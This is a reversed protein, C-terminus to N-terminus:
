EVGYAVGVKAAGHVGNRGVPPPEQKNVQCAAAAAWTRNQMREIVRTRHLYFPLNSPRSVMSSDRKGPARVYGTLLIARACDISQCSTKQVIMWVSSTDCVKATTGAM